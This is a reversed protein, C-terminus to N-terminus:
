NPRSRSARELESVRVEHDARTRQQVTLARIPVISPMRSSRQIPGRSDAARISSSYIRERSKTAMISITQIMDRVSRFRVTGVKTGASVSEILPLQAL